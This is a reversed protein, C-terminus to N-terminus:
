EDEGAEKAETPKQQLSDLYKRIRETPEVQTYEVPGGDVGTTEARTTYGRNKGITSLFYKCMGLDGGLAADTAVVEIKDIFEERIDTYFILISKNRDIFGKLSSRRRNLLRAADSLVGNTAILAACVDEPHFPGKDEVATPCLHFHYADNKVRERVEPLFPLDDM